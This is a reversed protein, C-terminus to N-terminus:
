STTTYVPAKRGHSLWIGLAVVVIGLWTSWYIQDGFMLAAWVLTVPPELYVLSAVRTASMRTLLQWLSLYAIFTSFITLWVVSTWVNWEQPVSLTGTAAGLTAFLALSTGSQMLLPLFLGEKSVPTEDLSQRRQYITAVSLSVASVLPLLYMWFSVDAASLMYQGSIVIGVGAFGVVLGTWEFLGSKETGTHSSIAATILPQLAAVIAAIGAPLGHQIATYISILYVFQSLFGIVAHYRIGEWTVDKVRVNLIILLCASVLLFRWFLLNAPGADEAGLKAGIFGSSWSLVFVTQLMITEDAGPM